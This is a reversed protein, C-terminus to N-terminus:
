SVELFGRALRPEVAVECKLSNAIFCHVHAREHLRFVEEDGPMKDGGFVVQPALVVKTIAMKGEANKALTGVAEDQYSEVVYRARAAVALFTLMHCSSLSAVLGEEPNALGPNGSYEPASSAGLVSGSGLKWLHDRSFAEYTFPRDGRTWVVGARHTSM